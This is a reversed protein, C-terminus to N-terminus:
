GRIVALLGTLTLLSAFSTVVSMLLLVIRAWRTRRWALATVVIALASLLAIVLSGYTFLNAVDGATLSVNELDGESISREFADRDANVALFTWAAAILAVASFLWTLVCAATVTGPRVLEEEVYAAPDFPSEARAEPEWSYRPPEPRQDPSPPQESM